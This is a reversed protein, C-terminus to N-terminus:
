DARGNGQVPGRPTVMETRVTVSDDHEFIFLKDTSQDIHNM